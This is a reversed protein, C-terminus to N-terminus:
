PTLIHAPAPRRTSAVGAEPRRRHRFRLRLQESVPDRALRALPSVSTQHMSLGVRVQDVEVTLAPEAKRFAAGQCPPGTPRCRSPGTEGRSAAADALEFYGALSANSRIWNNVTVRTVNWTSV